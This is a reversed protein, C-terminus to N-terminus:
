QNSPVERRAVVHILGIDTTLTKPKEMRVAKGDERSIQRGTKELM